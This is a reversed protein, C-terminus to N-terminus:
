LVYIDHRCVQGRLSQLPVLVTPLVWASKRWRRPSGEPRMIAEPLHQGIWRSGDLTGAGIAARRPANGIMPMGRSADGDSIARFINDTGASHFGFLFFSVLAPLTFHVPFFVVVQEMEDVM